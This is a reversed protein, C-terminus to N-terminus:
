SDRRPTIKKSIPYLQLGLHYVRTQKGDELFECLERRFKTIKKRAEPLKDIDIAMTMSTIDKDEQPINDLADLAMNLVQRQLEKHAASTQGPAFNTLFKDTKKISGNEESLLGLRMLREIAVKVEATTLSLMNAIVSPKSEFSDIYTLELIAIYYWNSLFTVVDETMVKYDTIPEDVNIKKSSNKYACEKIFAATVDSRTNLRNCIKEMVKSSPQRKGALIQSVSSADMELLASFSRLSYSSNRRCREMLESQLWIRFSDKTYSLSPEMHTKYIAEFHFVITTAM